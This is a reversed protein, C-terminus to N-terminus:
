NVTPPPQELLYIINKIYVLRRAEDVAYEIRFLPTVAAYMQLQLFELYGAPEGWGAPDNELRDIIRAYIRLVHNQLNLKEAMRYYGRFQAVNKGSYVIRYPAGSSPPMM